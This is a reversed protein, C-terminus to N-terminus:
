RRPHVGHCARDCAKGPPPQHIRCEVFAPTHTISGPRMMEIEILTPPASKLIVEAKYVEDPSQVIHAGAESYELDSFRAKEGAGAEVLVEHGHASLTAVSNPVLAVRNEQLTTEKPIGISLRQHRQPVALMEPQTRPLSLTEM